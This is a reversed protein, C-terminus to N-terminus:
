DAKCKDYQSKCKASNTFAGAICSQCGSGDTGTGTCIKACQGGCAGSNGTQGCLCEYMNTYLDYSSQGSGGVNNCGLVTTNTSAVGCDFATVCHSCHVSGVENCGSSSSSMMTSTTSVATTGGSGTTASSSMPTVTTTSSASTAGGAGKDSVVLCGTGASSIIGFLAVMSGTALWFRMSM